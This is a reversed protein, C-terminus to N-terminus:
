SENTFSAAAFDIWSVRAAIASSTQYSFNPQIARRNISYSAAPLSSFTLFRTLPQRWGCGASCYVPRISLFDYICFPLKLLYLFSQSHREIKRRGQLLPLGDRRISRFKSIWPGSFFFLLRMDEACRLFGAFTCFTQIPLPYKLHTAPSSPAM